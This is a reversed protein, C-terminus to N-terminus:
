QETRAEGNTNICHTSLSQRLIVVHPRHIHTIVAECAARTRALYAGDRSFIKQLTVRTYANSSVTLKQTLFKERAIKNVTM